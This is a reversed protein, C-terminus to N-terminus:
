VIVLVNVITLYWSYHVTLMRHRPVKLEYTAGPLARPKCCQIFILRAEPVIQSKISIVHRGCSLVTIMSCISHTIVTKRAEFRMGFAHSIAKGPWNKCCRGCPRLLPNGLVPMNPLRSLTLITNMTMLIFRPNQGWGTMADPILPSHNFSKYSVIYTFNNRIRFDPHLEAQLIRQRFNTQCVWAIIM